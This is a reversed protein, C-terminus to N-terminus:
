KLQFFQRKVITIEDTANLSGESDSLEFASYVKFYVKANKIAASEIYSKDLQTIKGEYKWVKDDIDTITAPNRKDAPISPDSTIEAKTLAITGSGGKKTTYAFSISAPPSDGWPEVDTIGSDYEAIVQSSGGPLEFYLEMKSIPHTSRVEFNFPINVLRDIEYDNVYIVKNGYVDKNVADGNVINMTMYATKTITEEHGAPEPTKKKPTDKIIDKLRFVGGATGVSFLNYTDMFILQNQYKAFPYTESWPNPDYPNKPTWRIGDDRPVYSDIKSNNYYYKYIPFATDWWSVIDYRGSGSKRYTCGGVGSMFWSTLISSPWVRTSDANYKWVAFDPGGDYLGPVREYLGASYSSDINFTGTKEDIWVIDCATLEDVSGFEGDSRSRQDGPENGILKKVKSIVKNNSSNSPMFEKFLDRGSGAIGREDASKKNVYFLMFMLKALNPELDGVGACTHSCAIALDGEVVVRNYIKMVQEFTLDNSKDYKTRNTRAVNLEADTKLRTGYYRVRYADMAADYTGDGSNGIIILDVNDILDKNADSQLQQPTRTFIKIGKNGNSNQAEKFLEAAKLNTDYVGTKRYLNGIEYAGRIEGNPNAEYTTEGSKVKAPYILTLFEENNLYKTKKYDYLYINGGNEYQEKTTYINKQIYTGDKDKESEVWVYDYGETWQSSINSPNLVFKSEMVINKIKGDSTYEVPYDTNVKYFGRNPEVKKFYGTYHGFEYTMAPVDSASSVASFMNIYYPYAWWSKNDAADNGNKNYGPMNNAMADMVWAREEPTSGLPEYGGITYGLFGMREDPVIELVNVIGFADDGEIWETTSYSHKGSEENEYDSNRGDFVGDAAPVVYANPIVMGLVIALAITSKYLRIIISNKM